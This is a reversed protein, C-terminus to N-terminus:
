AGPVRNNEKLFPYAVDDVYLNGYQDGVLDGLPGPRLHSLDPVHGM